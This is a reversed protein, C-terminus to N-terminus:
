HGTRRGIRSAPATRLENRRGFPGLVGREPSGLHGHNPGRPRKFPGARPLRWCGASRFKMLLLNVVSQINAVGNVHQTLGMAWCVITADANAYIRAAERLQEQAIGSERTIDAWSVSRIDQALAEFGVTRADIFQTDLVSGPQQDELDLVAKMIAKSYPWIVMSAFKFTCTQSGWGRGVMDGVKQPHKFRELGSERLPNISVITAGAKKADRLATLM